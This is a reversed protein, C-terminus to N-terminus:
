AIGGMWPDSFSVKGTEVRGAFRSEVDVGNAKVSFDYWSHSQELRLVVSTEKGPEIQGTVIEAKYANDHIEFGISKGTVNHLHLLANGTLTNGRREYCTRLKLPSSDPHGTFYRYFGNLGHAEIAYRSGAFIALPYQRTLSDGPKLACTASIMGQGPSDKINRLYVNFPAGASKAGHVENGACLHIEFHSGDAGINGDAYFEYPLACSPSIGDEQAPMRDSHRASKNIREIQEATLKTFKSPIEKYRAKEISVVFKDRNLFDLAALLPITKTLIM